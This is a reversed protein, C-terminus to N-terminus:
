GGASLLTDPEIPNLELGLSAWLPEKLIMFFPMCWSFAVWHPQLGSVTSPRRLQYSKRQGVDQTTFFSSSVSFFEFLSMMAPSHCLFFFVLWSPVPRGQSSTFSHCRWVNVRRWDRRGGYFGVAGHPLPSAIAIHPFLTINIVSRLSWPTSSHSSSSPPNKKTTKIFHFM